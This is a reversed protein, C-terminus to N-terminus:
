GATEGGLQRESLLRSVRLLQEGEPDPFENLWHYLYGVNLHAQV